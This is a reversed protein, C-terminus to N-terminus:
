NKKKKKRKQVVSMAYPLKQALSQIHAEATVEVVATAVGAGKVWQLPRQILGVGGAIGQAGATMNKTYQAM